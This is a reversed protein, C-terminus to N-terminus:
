KEKEKEKLRDRNDREKNVEERKRNSNVPVRNPRQPAQYTNRVNREMQLPNPQPLIYKEIKTAKNLSLHDQKPSYTQALINVSNPKSNQYEGESKYPTRMYKINLTQTYPYLDM